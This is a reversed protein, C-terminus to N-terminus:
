ACLFIIQYTGGPDPNKEWAGSGPTLLAVSGPDAFSGMIFMNIEFKTPKTDTCIYLRCYFIKPKERTVSKFIGALLIPPMNRCNQAMEQWHQWNTVTKDCLLISTGSYLSDCNAVVALSFSSLKFM